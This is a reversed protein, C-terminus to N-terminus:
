EAMLWVTTKGDFEIGWIPSNGDSFSIAFNVSADAVLVLLWEQNEGKILVQSSWSTSPTFPSM